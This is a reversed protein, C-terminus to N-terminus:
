GDPENRDRSLYGATAYIDLWGDNDLDALCAGYAWGVSAVQMKKGVQDFKLGGKNLHLQSGAVFRRMKELVAPSYADPALNGIVRTGAKSYMNACYIDINGDNDIDGVALGMSGFDAPSNALSHETFTGNRNNIFLGGDGFENIVHLDPWGDNNADLWAATFTSRRGGFTGSSQTVNAFQWNGKNRFLINGKARSSQTELWSNAGPPASRTVYLDLKGDCDYDAVVMGGVEGPIRLNSRETYDVFRKGQENRYIRDGLILDEWGDGDIDIWAASPRDTLRQPLGMQATVDEFAGDPRGRYLSTNLFDTILVDLIGDRDFDCVYVGGPSPRFVVNKWNDYLKATDFGRKQAVEAFLFRPAKATQVQVIGASLLWGPQSLLKETPRLLDLRLMLVVETPAGATREGHMRLQATCVWPGDVQQRVKPSLTMLSLKVQPPAAEFLGRFKILRAIFEDRTLPIPPHGADELREVQHSDAVSRVRNPERQDTGSFGDALLRSLAHADANKLGSALPGFGHKVLLNGHHEIEWLYNREAESLEPEQPRVTTAAGSEERAPDTGMAHLAALAAQRVSPSNNKLMARLKPEAPRSEVGIDGLARAVVIQLSIPSNTDLAEILVPVAEATGARGLSKVVMEQITFAALDVKTQNDHDKLATILAPIAPRADTGLRFLATAANMRVRVDTDQLAKALAPVASKPTPIMKALAEAAAARLKPDPDDLVVGALAPVAEGADTDTGVAALASVARRRDDGNPSRLAKIWYPISHGDYIGGSVFLNPFYVPSGPVFFALSALTLGAIAAAWARRRAM